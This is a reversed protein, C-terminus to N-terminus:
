KSLLYERNAYLFGLLIMVFGSINRGVFVNTTFMAFLMFIVIIKIFYIKKLKLVVKYFPIIFLIFGVFGFSFLLFLFSNDWITTNGGSDGFSSFDYVTHPLLLNSTNEETFIESWVRFRELMSEFFNSFTNILLYLAFVSVFFCFAIFVLAYLKNKMKLLKLIIYIFFTLLALLLATKNGSNFISVLSLFSLFVSMKRKLLFLFLVISMASYLGFTTSDGTTGLTRLTNFSSWVIRVEGADGRSTYGQFFISMWEWGLFQQMTSFISGVIAFLALVNFLIRNFNKFNPFSIKVYMLIQMAFFPIYFNRLTILFKDVSFNDYSLVLVLAFYMINVFFNISLIKDNLFRGLLLFLLFFEPLIPRINEIFTFSLGFHMIIGNFLLIFLYGIIGILILLSSMKYKKNVYSIKYNFTSQRVM